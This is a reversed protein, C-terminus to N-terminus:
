RWYGEVWIAHGGRVEWHGSVWLAGRRAPAVWHGNIWVYHGHQWAWRGAVWVHVASPARPRPDECPPPPLCTPTDVECSDAEARDSPLLVVVSGRRVGLCGALSLVFLSLCSVRVLWKGPM